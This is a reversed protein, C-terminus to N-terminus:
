AKLLVSVLKIYNATEKPMKLEGRKLKGVNGMGWNYGALTDGINNIYKSKGLLKTYYHIFKASEKADYLDEKTFNTKMRSNVWDIEIQRTQPYGELGLRNKSPNMGTEVLMIAKIMKENPTEGKKYLEKCAEIIDNDFRDYFKIKKKSFRNPTINNLEDIKHPSKGLSIHTLEDIKHPSKELSIHTLKKGMKLIDIIDKESLSMETNAIVEANKTIDAGSTFKTGTSLTILIILIIAIYKKAKLNINSNLKILLKKIMRSKDKVKSLINKLDQSNIGENLYKNSFLSDFIISDQYESLSEFIIKHEM